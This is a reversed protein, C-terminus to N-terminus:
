KAPPIIVGYVNPGRDLAGGIWVRAGIMSRLAPPPNGLPIRGDATELLLRGDENRLVGDIVPAGAVRLAAFKDVRFMNPSKKGRVRVEVGGMRSLAASDAPAASLYVASDGFRLVLQKEFSTGTISVIGRLSDPAFAGASGPVVPRCSTAATMLPGAVCLAMFAHAIM